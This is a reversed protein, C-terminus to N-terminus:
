GIVFTLPDGGESYLTLDQELKDIEAQADARLQDANLTTGGQPGAIQTFKGRAEALMLKAHALAYDKLWPTAYPDQLLVEDPRYNYVHLIVDDEGKIRRHITLKKSTTNWTFTYNAGFMRGLLEVHQALADYVAIGGARGSHLLYTNLYAAEFPEIDVGSTISSGARRYLQKVEIIEPPLTYESIDELLKLIIFSEEVANSSRQRYKQFAKNMALQYHEPDLEVDIMGGGLRLEIEKVLDDRLAM